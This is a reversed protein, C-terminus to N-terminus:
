DKAAKLLANLLPVFYFPLAIGTVFGTVLRLFNSSERWGLAQTGGDIAMPILALVLYWPSPWERMSAHGLALVLVGGMLMAFYIGVDRACVPIKYGTNGNLTTAQTKTFELKSSDPTCDAVSNTNPFYCLSRSNLQHCIFASGYASYIPAALPSNQMLLFPAAIIPLLWLSILVM